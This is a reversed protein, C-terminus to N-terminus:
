VMTGNANITQSLDWNNKNIADQFCETRYVTNRLVTNSHFRLWEDRVAVYQKIWTKEDGGNKPVSAPFKNRLFPLISGSHIYSDYIVLLSLPQTFMMSSFWTFAPQYYLQDFFSDQTTRMIPDLKGANKLANKFVADTCLSPQKGIKAVYPKMANAYLGNNAIYQQVLIKLVGYETTQSRGYTIQKIRNGGIIPGDAYISIADYKGNISGTEFVNVTQSIKM